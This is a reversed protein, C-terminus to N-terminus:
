GMIVLYGNYNKVLFRGYVVGGGCVIDKIDTEEVMDILELM